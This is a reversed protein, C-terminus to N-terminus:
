KTALYYCKREDLHENVGLSTRDNIGDHQYSYRVMSHLPVHESIDYALSSLHEYSYVYPIYVITPRVPLVLRYKVRTMCHM